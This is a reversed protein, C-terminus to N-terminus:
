LDCDLLYGWGKKDLGFLKVVKNIKDNGFGGEDLIRLELGVINHSYEKIDIWDVEKAIILLHKKQEATIDPFEEDILNGWCRQNSTLSWVDDEEEEEDEEEEDEEEEEECEGLEAELEGLLYFMDCSHHISYKKDLMLKGDFYVSFVFFKNEDDPETKNRITETKLTTYDMEYEYIPKLENFTLEDGFIKCITENRIDGYECIEINNNDECFEQKTFTM